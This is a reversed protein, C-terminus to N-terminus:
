LLLDLLVAIFKGLVAKMHWRLTGERRKVKGYRVKVKVLSAMMLSWKGVNVDSVSM